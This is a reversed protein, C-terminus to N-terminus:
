AQHLERGLPLDDKNAIGMAIRAAPGGARVPEYPRVGRPKSTSIRSSHIIRRGHAIERADEVARLLAVGFGSLFQQRQNVIFEAFEGRSFHGM